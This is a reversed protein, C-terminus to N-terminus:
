PDTREPSPHTPQYIGLEGGGPLKVRTMWGWSQREVASCEIQRRELEAVLAHVDHCTLYLEHRGGRDAPHVGLETPPLAFILWGDGADVSPLGLVDRFFARDAAADRTYLIIHAGRIVGM